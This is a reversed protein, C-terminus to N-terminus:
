KISKKKGGLGIHTQYIHFELTKRRIPKPHQQSKLMKPNVHRDLIQTDGRIVIKTCEMQKYKIHQYFDVTSM